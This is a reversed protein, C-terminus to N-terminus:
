HNTAALIPLYGLGNLSDLRAAKGTTVDVWWLEGQAGNRTGGWDHGNNKTELEFVVADNTPLFSPWVITGASPTYVVRFNSFASAAPDYDMLALSVGDAAITGGDAVAVSGSNFNFAVHKGDPSFVPSGVVLGPPLGTSAFPTGDAVHYLAATTPGNDEAAGGQLVTGDWKNAGNALLFTGNPYLASWNYRGDPKAPSPPLLATETYGNMLDVVASQPDEGSGSVDGNGTVLHSGDASVSHCVRCETDS